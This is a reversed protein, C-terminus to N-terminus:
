TGAFSLHLRFGHLLSIELLTNSIVIRQGKLTPLKKPISIVYRTSTLSSLDYRRNQPDTIKVNRMLCSPHKSKVNVEYGKLSVNVPNGSM